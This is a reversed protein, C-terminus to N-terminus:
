TKPLFFLKGEKAILRVDERFLDGENKHMQASSGDSQKRIMRVTDKPIKKFHLDNNFVAPINMFFGEIGNRMRKSSAVDIKHRLINDKHWENLQVLAGDAQKVYPRYLAYCNERSAAGLNLAYTLDGLKNMVELLIQQYQHWKHAESVLKEYKVYELDKEEAFGQLTLNAQGLLQVCEHELAKLHALERNRLEDNEVIEVQFTACKQAEAVLAYVKSKYENDQFDSIKNLGDSIGDLQNNIQNMYYQGVILSGVGMAVNVVNMVALGNAASNDALIWNAHGKFSNQVERFSGRFAGELARSKDLVAGNPIIAQFLQGAAKSADHYNKVVGANAIAQLTDPIVSYIRALMKKDNVEVLAANETETLAPLDEFKVEMEFSGVEKPLSGTSYPVREVDQSVQKHFGNSGKEKRKIIFIVSFLTVVVIILIVFTDM